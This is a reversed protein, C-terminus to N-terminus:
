LTHMSVPAPARNPVRAICEGILKDYDIGTDSTSEVNWPDVFDEAKENLDIAAVNEQVTKTEDAM